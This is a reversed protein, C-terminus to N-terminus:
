GDWHAEEWITKSWSYSSETNKSLIKIKGKTKVARPFKCNPIGIEPNTIWKEIIFM